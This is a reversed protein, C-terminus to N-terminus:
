DLTENVCNIKGSYKFDIKDLTAQCLYKSEEKSLGWVVMRVDREFRNGRDLRLYSTHTLGNAFLRKYRKHINPNCKPSQIECIACKKFMNKLYRKSRAKCDKDSVMESVFVYEIDRDIDPLNFSIRAELYVPNSIEAPNRELYYGSLGIIIVLLVLIIKKVFGREQYGSLHNGLM